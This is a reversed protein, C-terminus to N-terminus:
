IDENNVVKMFNEDTLKIAEEEGVLKKLKKNLKPLLEYKAESSSHIDSGVFSILGAKLLKKAMKQPRKGYLGFLSPYNIQMLVGMSRLECFFDLDDYYATYREPHALIPTIGASIVEFFISKVNNMKSYLPIEILMYRSNNLTAIKGQQYLNLIETTIYVENGLYVDIGYEEQALLKIENFIDRNERYPSNYDSDIIYHPTFMIAQVGYASAKALMRRTSDIGKAGDDVGPLYHSHLDKM